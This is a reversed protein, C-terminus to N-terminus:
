CTKPRSQGFQGSASTIVWVRASGHLHPIHFDVQQPVPFFHRHQPPLLHWSCRQASCPVCLSHRSHEEKPAHPIATDLTLFRTPFSQDGGARLLSWSWCYVPPSAAGYPEELATGNRQEKHPKPKIKTVDIRVTAHSLCPCPFFM